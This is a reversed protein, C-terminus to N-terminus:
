EPTEKKEKTNLIERNHLSKGELRWKRQHEGKRETNDKTNESERQTIIGQPIFPRKEGM